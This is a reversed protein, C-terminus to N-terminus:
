RWIRGAKREMAITGHGDSGQPPYLDAAQIRIEM